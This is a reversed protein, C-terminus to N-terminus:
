KAGAMSKVGLWLAAFLGGGVVTIFLAVLLMTVKDMRNRMVSICKHNDRIIEIGKNASGGGIDKYVGLAHGIEDVM